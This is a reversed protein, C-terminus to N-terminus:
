YSTRSILYVVAWLFAGVIIAAVVLGGDIRWRRESLVRVSTM